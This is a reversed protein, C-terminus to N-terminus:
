TQYLMLSNPCAVVIVSKTKSKRPKDMSYTLLDEWLDDDKQEKAFDIARQVDGLRNIILMLAKKNNGMRGLIFVMEPVLDRKECIHYAQTSFSMLMAILSM